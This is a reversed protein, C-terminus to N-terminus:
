HEDCHGEFPQWLRGQADALLTLRATLGKRQGVMAGTVALM